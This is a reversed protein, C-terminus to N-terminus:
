GTREKTGSKWDLDNQIAMRYEIISWEITWFLLFKTFAWTFIQLIPPKKVLPFFADSNCHAGYLFVTYLKRAPTHKFDYLSPPSDPCTLFFVWGLVYYYSSDWRENPIERYQFRAGEPAFFFSFFFFNFFFLLFYKAIHFM